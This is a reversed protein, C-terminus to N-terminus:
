SKDFKASFSKIHNRSVPVQIKGNKLDLKYGQANGNVEKIQNLNVIFAKHSRFMSDFDVLQKEIDKLTNRITKELIKENDVWRITAYNGISEIFMLDSITTTINDKRNSAFIILEGDPKKKSVQHTLKKNLQSAHSLNKALKKNHSLITVIVLPFIATVFTYLLFRLFIYLDNPFDIVYISYCYNLITILFVNWLLWIIQSFVTWQKEIFISPFLLPAIHQNFGVALFTIFGYGLIVWIKHEIYLTHLGFPQFAFLFFAIFFGLTIAKKWSYLHLPYPNKLIRTM